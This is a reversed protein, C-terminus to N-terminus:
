PEIGHHERYMEGITLVVKRKAKPIQKTTLLFVRQVKGQGDFHCRYTNETYGGELTPYKSLYGLDIFFLNKTNEVPTVEDSGVVLTTELKNPGGLVQIAKQHCIADMQPVLEESFEPSCGALAMAALIIASSRQSM